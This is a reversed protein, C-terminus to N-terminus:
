FARALRNSTYPSCSSFSVIVTLGNQCWSSKHTGNTELLHIQTHNRTSFFPWVTKRKLDLALGWAASLFFRLNSSSSGANSTCGISMWSRSLCGAGAVLVLFFIMGSNTCFYQFEQHVM